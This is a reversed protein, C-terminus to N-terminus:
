FLEPQQQPSLETESCDYSTPETTAACWGSVFKKWNLIVSAPCSPSVWGLNLGMLQTVWQSNLKAASPPTQVDRTLSRYVGSKRTVNDGDDAQPTAWQHMNVQATLPMTAVDGNEQRKLWTEPNEDTTKGARPTAWQKRQEQEVAIPLPRHLNIGEAAKRQRRAEWTELSEGV